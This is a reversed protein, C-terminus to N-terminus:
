GASWLINLPKIALWAWLIGGALMFWGLSLTLALSLAGPLLLGFGGILVLLVGLLLITSRPMANIKTKVITEM